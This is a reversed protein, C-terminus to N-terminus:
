GGAGEDTSQAMFIRAAVSPEPLAHPRAGRAVRTRVILIQPPVFFAPGRRVWGPLNEIPLQSLAKKDKMGGPGAPQQRGPARQAFAAEAERLKGIIQEPTFRKRSM